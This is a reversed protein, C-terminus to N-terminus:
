PLARPRRHQRPVHLEPWGSGLRQRTRELPPRQGLRPAAERYEGRRVRRRRHRRRLARDRRGARRRGRTVRGGSADTELKTARANRLLTVNPHELAPRVGLVEADSKAHVLCPFGDCTACRVCHSYAMNAENLRIGCPAHFPHYGAATLDDSLQQIRPRALGGSPYPAGGAARDPGQRSRRAGRLPARGAHLVARARRVRDAVRALRRRPPPARRFGGQPTSLARGRLAQDGRRRLLPDAAPRSAKADYWTTRSTGTTPSSTRRTGTQPERPLWDGRELLLIRKGSPALHRALTGGGAGTGIIIVDYSDMTLVGGVDRPRHDSRGGGDAGPPLVGAPLERPTSRRPM